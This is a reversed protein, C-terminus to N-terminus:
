QSWGATWYENWRFGDNESVRLAHLGWFACLVPNFSFALYGRRTTMVRKLM